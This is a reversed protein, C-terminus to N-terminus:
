TSLQERTFGALLNVPIVQGIHDSPGAILSLGDLWVLHDANPEFSVVRSGDSALPGFTIQTDEETLHVGYVLRLQEFLVSLSMGESYVFMIPSPIYEELSLRKYAVETSPANEHAGKLRIRVKTNVPSDDAVELAVVQDADIEGYRIHTKNTQNILDVLADLSPKDFRRDTPSPNGM